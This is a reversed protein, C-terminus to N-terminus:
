PSEGTFRISSLLDLQLTGILPADVAPFVGVITGGGPDGTLLFTSCDFPAGTLDFAVVQAANTNLDMLGGQKHGTTFNIKVAPDGPTAPPNCPDGSPRQDLIVSLTLTSDGALYPDDGVSLISAGNCVGVHNPNTDATNDPDTCTPDVTGDPVFVGSVGHLVGGGPNPASDCGAGQVCHDQFRGLEPSELFGTGSVDAGTCNLIGRGAIGPPLDPDQALFPCIAGVFGGLDVGPLQVIPVDFQLVGPVIEETFVFEVAGSLPVTIGLSTNAQSITPDITFPRSGLCVCLSTCEGPCAADDAGDCQEGPAEALDNGCVGAPACTCDSECLPAPCALDDAGDCQEDPQNVADDGCTPVPEDGIVAPICLETAKTTEFVAAGPGNAAELENNTHLGDRGVHFGEGKARKARHCMLHGGPRKIGEGGKDVALCLRSGRIIQHAGREDFTDGVVLMTNKDLRGAGKTPKVRYCKYHDVDHLADNLPDVPGVDSESSPVLLGAEKVTDYAYTGLASRVEIGVQRVHKAATSLRRIRYDLLHVDPRHAGESAIEAPNCLSSRKVVEFYLSELDDILFLGPLPDFRPASRARYCLYGDDPAGAIGGGTELKVIWGDGLGNSAGAFDPQLAFPSTPLDTASTGGGVYVDGRGDVAIGAAFEAATAPVDDSGGVYSAALLESGTVDLRFVYGDFTGGGFSPQYSTLTPMDASRTQGSVYATGHSVAIRSLVDNNSGGIYTAYEYASGAANLKVVFGDGGVWQGPLGNAGGGVGGAFTTQFAGATVPFDTSTTGGSVHANGLTDVAVGFAGDDDSGGIYTAYSSATGDPSLKVLFADGGDFSPDPNNGNYIPQAAGATTALDTSRTMGVVYANGDLDVDVDTAFDNNSGGVYTSYVLSSGAPAIKTVVGDFGGNCTGLTGCTADWAGPTTPYNQSITQGTIHAAGNADVAMGDAFLEFSSGGVYTSYVLTGSASLKLAVFDTGGALAPQAANVTPFDTSGSVGSVYVNGDRDVHIRGDSEAASGGIFTSYVLANGAANLRSVFLDSGGSKGSGDNAPFDLSFTYGTAYVNGGADVTIDGIREGLTGGLYTAYTLVPDIVLVRTPDHAAVEFRVVGDADIRYGAALERRERDFTQYAYPRKQLLREGGAEIVLNGDDDISVADAGEISVGIVAPDTGPSVLLDYELVREPKSYFLADVGAYLDDYRVRAFHRAGLIWRSPDDGRYYHSVGTLPSDGLTRVRERAGVFALRVERSAGDVAGRLHFSAGRERLELLMGDGRALFRTAAAAQGRNEEFGLGLRLLPPKANAASAAHGAVFSALFVSICALSPLRAFITGVRM